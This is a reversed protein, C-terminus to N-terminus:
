SVYPFASTQTHHLDFMHTRLPLHVFWTTLFHSLCGAIHMFQLSPLGYITCIGVTYNTESFLVIIDVYCIYNKLLFISCLLYFIVKESHQGHKYFFSLMKRPSAAPDSQELVDSWFNTITSFFWLVELCICSIEGRGEGGQPHLVSKSIIGAPICGYLTWIFLSLSLLAWRLEGKKILINTASAVSTHCSCFLSHM